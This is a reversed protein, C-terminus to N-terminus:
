RERRARARAVMASLDAGFPPRAVGEETVIGAILAAPTVDFAPNFVAIGSPACARGGPHTVEDSRRQEIPIGGGDACDLDVTSTPAAVYFPVGHHACLVALGYTGIKNASDGNAAIRDAGVIAAQVRGMRLLHAAMNDCLLTAPIADQVCEWATLRAGQWLPRTEDVYVHLRHGRAIATRIVGLGTGIGATALAGTNCHTIVGGDEPLLPAGHAGIRLCCAIDDDDIARAKRWLAAQRLALPRGASASGERQMADIAWFLNVATPRTAAFARAVEALRRDFEEGPDRAMALAIGYGAAVGIAPAGRVALTRIAEMVEDEHRCDLHVQADPLRRQDILRVAAPPGETASIARIATTVTM